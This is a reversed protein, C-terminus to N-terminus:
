RMVSPLFLAIQPMAIILGVIVLDLLIYPLVGRFAEEVRVGSSGGSVVFVNLGVPPTLLGIEVLKVVLIAFWIGDYGLETVVPYMIPVSILVVTLSDLFMGIPILLALFLVLVLARPVDAQAILESVEHPLRIYVLFYTFIGGGIFLAFIMGTMAVAEEVSKRLVVLRGSKRHVRRDAVVMVACVLAGVGASEVVTLLGSYIGGIIILFLLAIQIVGASSSDEDIPDLEAGLEGEGSTAPTAGGASPSGATAVSEAAARQRMWARVSFYVAFITASVIGPIIGALLLAGISEETIMGYVVLIISPPILVGLTGASAVAGAADSPRTGQRIMQRISVRGVTSATAVSSGSVASFAACAGIAAVGTGGPFWRTIRKAFDFADSAMRSHNALAGILMFLPIVVLAYKAVLNYTIQGVMSTVYAFDTYAWLGASGSTFLALAVPTRVSLLLILVLAALGFALYSM